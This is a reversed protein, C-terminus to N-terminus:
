GFGHMRNRFSGRFLQARWVQTSQVRVRPTWTGLIHLICRLGYNRNRPGLVAVMYIYIYVCEMNPFKPGEPNPVRLPCAQAHGPLPPFEVEEMPPPDPRLEFSGVCSFVHFDKLFSHVMSSLGHVM